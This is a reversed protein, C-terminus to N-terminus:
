RARRIPAAALGTRCPSRSSCTPLIATSRAARSVRAAGSQLQFRVRLRIRREYVRGDHEFPVYRYQGVAALAAADFQGPPSARQVVLNRPQGARDVVFELDVWGETGRELAEPPYVAPASSRVTLESAPAVTALYLEQLRGAALEAALPAAAARGRRRKRSGACAACRRNGLRGERDRKPHRARRSAAVSGVGRCARRAAACREAFEDSLRARQREGARVIRRKARTRAGYRATRSLRQEERTLASGLM